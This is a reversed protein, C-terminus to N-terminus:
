RDDITQAGHRWTTGACQRILLNRNGDLVEHALLVAQIEIPAQGAPGPPQAPWDGRDVQEIARDSSRKFAQVTGTM